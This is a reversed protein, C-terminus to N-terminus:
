GVRSVPKIVPNTREVNGEDGAKRFYNKLSITILM